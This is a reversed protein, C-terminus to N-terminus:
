NRSNYSAVKTPVNAGVIVVAERVRVEIREGGLTARVRLLTLEGKGV